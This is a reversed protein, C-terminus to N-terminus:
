LECYVQSNLPAPASHHPHELAEVVHFLGHFLRSVLCLTFAIPILCCPHQITSTGHAQARFISCRRFWVHLGQVQSSWIVADHLHCSSVGKMRYGHLRAKEAWRAAAKIDKNTGYGYAYMQALLAQQKM